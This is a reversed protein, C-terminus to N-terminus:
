VVSKRDINFLDAIKQEISGSEHESSAIEEILGKLQERNNEALMDFSGFRAYEATLPNLEQWGGTAFQYFDNGLKASTDLNELHIGSVQNKNENMGKCATMAVFVLLLLGASMTKFNKIKM